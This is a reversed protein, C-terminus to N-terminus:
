RVIWEDILLTAAQGENPFGAPITSWAEIKLRLYRAKVRSPNLRLTEIQPTPTNTLASLERKEILSYNKDQNSGSFEVSRPLFIGGEPFALFHIELEQIAKKDGLDLVIEVTERQYSQWRGDRWNDTGRLGDVLRSPGKQTAASRPPTQRLMLANMGLHADLDQRFVETSRAEGTQLRVQIQAPPTVRFAQQYVPANQDPVTGDLTYHLQHPLAEVSYSLEVEYQGADPLYVPAFRPAGYFIITEDSRFPAAPLGAANFLSAEPANEFAYRVAVPDTVAESEVLLTNGNELRAVAPFFQGAANALMFHTLGKPGAQLPSSSEKFFVRLGKGDKEIHDYVPGNVVEIPQDYTQALALHALRQGVIQKQRPHIDQPNGVDLTVVMNTKPIRELTLSQAERIGAGALPEAYTYPAIQVFYFPFNRQWDKRWQLILEPFLERYLYPDYRNSEGQYWIVGQIEYPILPAIMANYLITPNHKQAPNPRNENERYARVTNDFRDLLTRFIAQSELTPRNMWAEVPTGGWTSQIIGVPVGLSQSLEQAYFYAVASKEAMTEPTAVKWSGECDFRPTTAVDHAVQFFRIQPNQANQLAAPGNLADKLPWEMNSQGGALWVEGILIDNLLLTNQGQIRIQYPGGAEPTLLDVRWRGRSDTYISFQMDDWSAQMEILEGPDARGWIAVYAKRQLVMHDGFIAPLVVKAHLTCVNLGLLLFCLLFKMTSFKVFLGLNNELAKM